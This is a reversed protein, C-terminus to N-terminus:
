TSNWTNLVKAIPVADVHMLFTSSLFNISAQDMEYCACSCTFMEKEVMFIM